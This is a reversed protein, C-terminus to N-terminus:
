IPPHTRAGEARRCLNHLQRREMVEHLAGMIPAVVAMKPGPRYDARVRVVLRTADAGIPELAFAWTTRWPPADPPDGGPLLGPAGIVLAREPEIRLVAFGGPKDPTAPLIDGVALCQLEPIIRDASPVGGNDLRDFSYWGARRCGMQVLWPWVRAPPAEITTTHTKHLKAAPLIDDGAVPRAQDPPPRGLDQVLAKILQRRITRSFRGILLWYPKFRDWADADTAGVRLDVTIWSGGGPRPDVRLCWAV